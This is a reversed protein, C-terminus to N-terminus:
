WTYIDVGSKNQDGVPKVIIENPICVIPQNPNSVWGTNECVKLPCTSNIVRVAGNLYEVQLLLYGDTDNITYTGEQTITLIKEGKLFVEIESFPSKSGIHTFLIFGGIILFLVFIVYFDTKRAFKM